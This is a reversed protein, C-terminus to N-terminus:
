DRARRGRDSAKKGSKGSRVRWQRPRRHEEAVFEPDIQTRCDKWAEYVRGLSVQRYEPSLAEDETFVDNVTAFLELLPEVAAILIEARKQSSLGTWSKRKRTTTSGRSAANGARRSTTKAPKRKPAAVRAGFETLYVIAEELWVVNDSFNGLGHNCTHCLLGRVCEGCSRNGPCCQHDHDIHLRDCSPSKGHPLRGCIYCRGGQAELMEQYREPTVNYLRLPLNKSSQSKKRAYREPDAMRTTEYRQAARRRSAVYNPDSTMREAHRLRQREKRAKARPSNKPRSM